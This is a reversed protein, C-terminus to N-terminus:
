DSDSFSEAEEEEDEGSMTVASSSVDEEDEEINEEEEDDEINEEEEEPASNCGEFDDDSYDDGMETVDNGVLFTLDIDSKESAFGNGCSGFVALKSGPPFANSALLMAEMSSRVQEVRERHEKSQIKKAFMEELVENLKTEVEKNLKHEQKKVPFPPVVCTKINSSNNNRQKRNPTHKQKQKQNHQQSQNIEDREYRGRGRGRGGRGSNGGRGVYGGRGSYGGRGRGGRGLSRSSIGGQNM